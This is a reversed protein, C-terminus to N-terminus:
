NIQKNWTCTPSKHTNFHDTSLLQVQHFHTPSEFAWCQLYRRFPVIADALSVQASFKHCSAGWWSVQALSVQALRQHAKYLHVNFIFNSRKAGVYHLLTDLHWELPIDEHVILICENQFCQHLIVKFIRWVELILHFISSQHLSAIRMRHSKPPHSLM